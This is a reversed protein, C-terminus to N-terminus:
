RSASRMLMLMVYWRLEELYPNDNTIIWESKLKSMHPEYYPEWDAIWYKMRSLATAFEARTLYDFPRFENNPMNIWMIWLQFSLIVWSNYQTDLEDPIDKFKIKLREDPTEWLVNIAYYSLMKALEIRTIKFNINAEEISPMTTIWHDYCYKYASIIENSTWDVWNWLPWLLIDNWNSNKSTNDNSDSAKWNSWSSWSNWNSSNNWNSSSNWSNWTNWSNWNNWNWLWKTSSTNTDSAEWKAYLTIDGSLIAPTNPTIKDWWDNSTYWWEFSYWDKTPTPLNWYKSNNNWNDATVYKYQKDSDDWLDFSIKYDDSWRAFLETDTYLPTSNPEINSDNNLDPNTFWWIVTAEPDHYLWPLANHPVIANMWESLAKSQMPKWWRTNYSIIIPKSDENIYVDKFCRIPLWYSREIYHNADIFSNEIHFHRSFQILPSLSYPSSSWYNWIEWIYSINWNKYDFFWALPLSFESRFRSGILTEHIYLLNSTVNKLLWSKNELWLSFLENWEWQSPIHFWVPCPWQRYYANDLDLWWGNNSMEFDSSADKDWWRLSLNNSIDWIWTYTNWEDKFFKNSTYPNYRTYDSLDTQDSTYTIGNTWDFWYNNWRQFYYWNKNSDTAWLNSNLITIVKNNWSNNPDSYSFNITGYNFVNWSTDIYNVSESWQSITYQSFTKTQLSFIFVILIICLKSTKM